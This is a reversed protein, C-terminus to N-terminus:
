KGYGVPRSAANVLRSTLSPLLITDRATTKYPISQSATVSLASNLMSASVPNSSAPEMSVSPAILQSSTTALNHPITSAGHSRARVSSRPAITRSPDDEYATDNSSRLLGGGEVYVSLPPHLEMYAFMSVCQSNKHYSSLGNLCVGRDFYWWEGSCILFATLFDPEANSYEIRDLSIAWNDNDGSNARMARIPKIVDYELTADHDDYILTTESRVLVLADNTRYLAFHNRYAPGNRNPLM